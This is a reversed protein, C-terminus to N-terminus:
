RLKTSAVPCWDARPGNGDYSHALGGKLMAAGLDVGAANAVNADVRGGYKDYAVNTLRITDGALRALQQRAEEAMAKEAACTTHLEPTDIGRIRVHMAVSTGLWVAAEFASTDGDLVEVVHAN